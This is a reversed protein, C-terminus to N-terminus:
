FVANLTYMSRDSQINFGLSWFLYSDTNHALDDLNPSVIITSYYFVFPLYEVHLLEFGPLHIAVPNKRKRWRFINNYFLWEEYLYTIQEKKQLLIM